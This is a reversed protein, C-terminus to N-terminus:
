ELLEKVEGIKLDRLADDFKEVQSQKEMQRRGERTDSPRKLRQQEPTLTKETPYFNQWYMEGRFNEDQPIYFEEQGGAKDMKVSPWVTNGFFSMDSNFDGSPILEKTHYFRERLEKNM